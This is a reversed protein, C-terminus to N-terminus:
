EVTYTITDSWTQSSTTEEVIYGAITLWQRTVTTASAFVVSDRRAKVSNIVVDKVGEVAQIADQIKSVLVLGDFPLNDVYNKLALEVDAQISNVYQGDYFVEANIYLKDSNDSYLTLFPGAPLINQLYQELATLEPASLPVPPDSKAVKINIRGNGITTVSARTVIRLTEDVVPYAPVYDIIEVYQPTTADYQFEFIKKQIWAETGPIANAVILEIESKYNDFLQEEVNQLIAVVDFISNLVGVRSGGEEAMQIGAISTQTNKETIIAKKIESISRAM